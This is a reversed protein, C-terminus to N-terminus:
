VAATRMHVSLLSRQAVVLVQEHEFHLTVQDLLLSALLAGGFTGAKLAPACHELEAGLAESEIRRYGYAQRVFSALLGRLPQRHGIPIVLLALPLGKNGLQVLVPTEYSGIHFM